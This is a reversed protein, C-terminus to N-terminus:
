NGGRKFFVIRVDDLPLGFQDSLVESRGIQRIAREAIPLTGPLPCERACGVVLSDGMGLASKFQDASAGATLRIPGPVQQTQQQRPAPCLESQRPALRDRGKALRGSNGAFLLERRIEHLCRQLKVGCLREEFAGAIFRKRQQCLRDGTSDGEGCLEYSPHGRVSYHIQRPPRRDQWVGSRDASGTRRM